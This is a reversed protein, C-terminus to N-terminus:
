GYAFPLSGAAHWSFVFHDDQRHRGQQGAPEIQHSAPSVLLLLRRRGDPGGRRGVLGCAHGGGPRGRGGGTGHRRGHDRRRGRRGAFGCPGRNRGGRRPIWGRSRGPIRGGRRSGGGRGGRCVFPPRRGRGRRGRRRGDGRRPLTGGSRLRRRRRPCLRGRLGPVNGLAVRRGSRRRRRPVRRRGGCPRGRGIGRGDRWRGIRVQRRARLGGRLWRA